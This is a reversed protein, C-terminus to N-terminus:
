KLNKKWEGNDIWGCEKDLNIEEIDLEGFENNVWDEMNDDNTEYAADDYLSEIIEDEDEYYEGNNDCWIVDGTLLKNNCGRVVPCKEEKVGHKEIWDYFLDITTYSGNANRIYEPRIFFVNKMFDVLGEITDCGQVRKLIEEIEDIDYLLVIKKGSKQIVDYIDKCDEQSVGLSSLYNVLKKDNELRHKLTLNENVFEEFKKIM